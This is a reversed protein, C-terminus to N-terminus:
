GLIKNKSEEFIGRWIQDHNYPLIYLFPFSQVPLIGMYKVVTLTYIGLSSYLNVNM